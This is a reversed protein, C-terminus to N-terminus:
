SSPEDLDMSELWPRVGATTSDESSLRPQLGDWDVESQPDWPWLADRDPWICQLTPFEDGGYYWTAYGLFPGYWRRAVREFLCDYGELIEGSRQEHQYRHGRRIDEGINNIITHMMDTPLGVMVIEPHDFTEILGVSFAWGEAVDSSAVKVVHWGYQAVDDYVKRESASLLELDRAVGRKPSIGM